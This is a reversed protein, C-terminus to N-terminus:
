RDASGSPLTAKLSNVKACLEDFQKAEDATLNRKDKIAKDLIIRM